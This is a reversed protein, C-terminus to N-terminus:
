ASMGQGPRACRGGARDVTMHRCWAGGHVPVLGRGRAFKKPFGRIRRYRQWARRGVLKYFVPTTRRSGRLDAPKHGRLPTADASPYSRHLLRCPPPRTLPVAKTSKQCFPFPGHSCVSVTVKWLEWKLTLGSGEVSTKQDSSALGLMPTTHYLRLSAAYAIARERRTAGRAAPVVRGPPEIEKREKAPRCAAGPSGKDCAVM